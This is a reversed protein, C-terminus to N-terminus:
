DIQQPLKHRKHQIAYWLGILIAALIWIIFHPLTLWPYPPQVPEGFRSGPPWFIFDPSGRLNGQPVFGFVRSDGSMAYNDGLALYHKEPIKLGYTALFETDILGEETVPPGHDIFPLYPAPKAKEEEVFNILNEEDKDVVKAGMVYLDGDRFWAFRSPRLHQSVQKGGFRSDFEIGQNFLIQLQKNNPHNLPHDEPLLKSVGQWHIKYTHGERIEYTGNEIGNLRTVYYPISNDKPVATGYRYAYGDRVTFRATYLGRHLHTLQEQSLPIISSETRLAPRKRGYIDTELTAGRLSPDHTLELYLATNKTLEHDTLTEVEEPTLLKAMAYNKMGWLQGYDEVGPIFMKGCIDGRGVQTLQAIRENMQYFIAPSYIGSQSRDPTVTKGGFQIFPVHDVYHLEPYQLQDTIDRNDKDIGYLKGGYFYLTDGPKGMLRKVLQKKGPFIFFYRMDSDPIDMGATTFTFIGSRQVLDPDFFLHTPKIPTNIGFTTKSVSLRDKEALTPRMSGTPIEYLEFWVQRILIAAILAFGLGIISRLYDYFDKKLYTRSFGTLMNTANTAEDRDRKIIAEQAAQLERRVTEREEKSLRERKRNYKKLATLFIKKCKRISRFRM